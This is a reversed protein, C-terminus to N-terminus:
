AIEASISRESLATVAFVVSLMWVEACFACLASTAADFSTEEFTLDVEASM